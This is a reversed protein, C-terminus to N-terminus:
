SLILGVVHLIGCFDAHDLDFAFDVYGVIFASRAPSDEVTIRDLRFDMFGWESCGISELEDECKSTELESFARCPSYGWCEHIEWPWGLATFLVGDGHGNTHFYVPSRCYWCKTLYTLPRGLSDLSWTRSRKEPVAPKEMAISASRATDGCCAHKGNGYPDM